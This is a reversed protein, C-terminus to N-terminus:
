LDTPIETVFCVHDTHKQLVRGTRCCTETTNDSVCVEDCEDTFLVKESESRVSWTVASILLFRTPVVLQWDCASVVSFMVM